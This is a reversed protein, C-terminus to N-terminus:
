ESEKTPTTRVTTAVKLLESSPSLSARQAAGLNVEFRVRDGELVFQIMGGRQTFQPMDSVTLVGTKGLVALIDDLRANESASIFLIRCDAADQVRAPRMAVVKRGDITEGALTADLTPGFPDHGLVCIAFSGNKGAAAPWRIFKGFNYLYAAKVQYETPKPLPAPDADPVGIAACIVALTVATLLLRPRDRATSAPRSM